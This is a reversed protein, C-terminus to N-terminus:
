KAQIKEFIEEAKDAMEGAKNASNRADRAAQEARDAADEARQANKESEACCTEANAKASQAEKLARDATDKAQMVQEELLMLRDSPTCCGLSGIGWCSLVALVLVLRIWRFNSMKIGGRQKFSFSLQLLIKCVTGLRYSGKLM